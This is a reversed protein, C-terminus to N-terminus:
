PRPPAALRKALGSAAASVEAAIHFMGASPGNWYSGVVAAATPRKAARRRSRHDGLQGMDVSQVGCSCCATWSRYKWGRAISARNASSNGSKASPRVGGSRPASSSALAPVIEAACDRQGVGAARSRRADRAGHRPAVPWGARPRVARRQEDQAAQEGVLVCAVADHSFSLPVCAAPSRSAAAPPPARRRQEPQGAGPQDGLVAWRRCPRTQRSARAAECAEAVLAVAAIARHRGHQGGEVRRQGGLLMCNALTWLPKTIFSVVPAHSPPAWPKSTM